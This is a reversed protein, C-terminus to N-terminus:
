DRFLHKNTNLQEYETWIITGDEQVIGTRTEQVINVNDELYLVLGLLMFGILLIVLGYKM